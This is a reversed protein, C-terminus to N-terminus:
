KHAVKGKTVSAKSRERDMDTAPPQKDYTVRLLEAARHAQELKDAVILAIYQGSYYVMPSQLPVRRGAADGEAPNTFVPRLKPANEHTIVALVGPIKQVASTDFSRIRGNAITSSVLVAYAMNRLPYEAAYRAGGTVKLRGDVRNLPKGVVGSNKAQKEQDTSM